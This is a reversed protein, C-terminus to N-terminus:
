LLPFSTLGKLDPKERAIELHGSTSNQHLGTRYQRRRRNVFRTQSSRPRYKLLFTVDLQETREQLKNKKQLLAAKFFLM